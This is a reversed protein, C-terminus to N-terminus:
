GHHRDLKLGRGQVLPSRNNAAERAEILPKLGRGQV